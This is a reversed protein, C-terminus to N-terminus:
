FQRFYREAGSAQPKEEWYSAQAPEFRLGLVDRGALRFALGLPAFLGYYIGGLVIRSVVWGIPFTLVMAAIFVPRVLAPQCLGAVGVVVAVGALAWVGPAPGDRLLRACALGGFFVLWLGAFQRLTRPPPSFPIDSWRM